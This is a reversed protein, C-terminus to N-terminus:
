SEVKVVEKEQKIHFVRAEADWEGNELKLVLYGLDPVLGLGRKEAYSDRAKWCPVIAAVKGKWEVLIHIHLHGRLIVKVEGLEAENILSNVIERSVGSTKNLGYGSVQHGLNVINGKGFELNLNFGSKRVGLMEGVLKDADVVYDKEVHYGSGYVLFADGRLRIMRLLDVACNIQEEISPIDIDGDNPYGEVCDGLIFLFDVKGVERVMEKWKKWLRKQVENLKGYKPHKLGWRSGCHLDGVCLIKVKSVDYLVCESDPRFCLGAEKDQGNISYAKFIGGKRRLRLLGLLAASRLFRPSGAKKV